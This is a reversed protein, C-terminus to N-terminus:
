QCLETLKDKIYFNSVARTSTGSFKSVLETLSDRFSFHSYIVSTFM